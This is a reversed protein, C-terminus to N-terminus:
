NKFKKLERLAPLACGTRNDFLGRNLWGTTVNNGYANEEAFWWFLGTVNDHRHLEAVLEAAFQRQGEVSIPYFEAYKDATAWPDNEHSYYAAAEVIMAKKEPFHQALLNLNKGLNDITGHWMPYYSLGIIDYDVGHQKLHRYYSETIEWSGAKETHIIIAAEPCVERCARIGADYLLCLRDWGEDKTPDLRALPWLMGNTTENGVQILDPAAGGDKLAQLSRRTHEYVSDAMENLGCGQWMAPTTQKGPDAWYDSYHFDLLLQMGHQKVEQCLPLIYKLDQCVGEDKHKSPAMDPNVFLRVRVANWGEECLFQLPKVANGDYDRYVTGAKKYSPLLSLDGGLLRQPQAILLAPLISLMLSIFFTKMQVELTNTNITTIKNQSQLFLMKKGFSWIYHSKKKTNGM